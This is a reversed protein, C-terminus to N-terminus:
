FELASSVLFLSLNTDKVFTGYCLSRAKSDAGCQSLSIIYSYDFTSFEM